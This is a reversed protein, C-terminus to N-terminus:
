SFACFPAAATLATGSGDVQARARNAASAQRRPRRRRTQDRGTKNVEGYGAAGSRCPPNRIGVGQLSSLPRLPEATLIQVASASLRSVIRRCVTAGTQLIFSALRRPDCRKPRSKLRHVTNM